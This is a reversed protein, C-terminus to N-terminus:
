GTFFDDHDAYGMGLREALTRDATSRGVLVSDGLALDHRRALELVLGPLPKRCWCVPPGAAHPCWVIDIDVGIEARVRDFAALVDANLATADDLQPRWAIACITWGDAAREAIRVRREPATHVAEASLAPSGPASGTCLVDDFEFILAKRSGSSPRRTFARLEIEEFGEGPRPEEFQREYRFQADPGFWRTDTRGRERIEEPLPLRGNEALLRRVANIQAEPVSTQLWVCRVPVGRSWACEIVENRSARTPYTNDLVWRRRGAGLGEDLAVVLDSLTGGREDRNLREYGREVYARAITSKGAGPAGMIIVVDGSADRPPRRESRPVRLLRGAPFRADLRARDEDTLRIDAARMASRATEVRTAGPIPLIARDLDLLWALAIEHPTADHQRGIARLVEDMALRDARDGGLPRYAILRIGEDRCYEAVGNRLGSPDLVGIGVQVASIEVISRAAEIQEVTVNCLGVQRIWGAERLSGLTRVSTELRTRPDVVHLQYLDIAEVGLALRSRECASRLHKARGDPVWRGGPRRLGGKTAVEVSGADGSWLRLARAILRENHGTDSDGRAYADSTDLFRAGADLAAHIVRIAVEDDRGPSTSLRMCGLGLRGAM